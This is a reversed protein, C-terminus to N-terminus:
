DYSVEKVRTDLDALIKAETAADPADRLRIAANEYAGCIAKCKELTFENGRIKEIFWELM